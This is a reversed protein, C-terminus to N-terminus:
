QPMTVITNVTKNNMKTRISLMDTGIPVISSGKKNPHYQCLFDNRIYQIVHFIIISM